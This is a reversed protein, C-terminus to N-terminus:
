RLMTITSVTQNSIPIPGAGPPAVLLDVQDDSKATVVWGGSAVQMESTTNGRGEIPLGGQVTGSLSYAAKSSVKLAGGEGSAAVHNTISNRTMIQTQVTDTTNVTDAWTDGAKAGPKIKPFLGDVLGRLQARRTSDVDGFGEAEGEANVFGSGRLDKFMNLVGAAAPNDAGEGPVLSDVVARVARGGASDTVDVTMFVDYAMSVVQEAQGMATLDVVQDFQQHIRYRLTEVAGTPSAVLAAATVAAVVSSPLM